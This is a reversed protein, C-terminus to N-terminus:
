KRNLDELVVDLTAGRVNANIINGNKDLLLSYPIGLINYAQSIDGEFGKPDNLQTWVMKEEKMAKVWAAKNEDLSISVIEFNNKKNKNVERLHPIEGRCPGCWSAWFELMVYKGEPVVSSLMVKKGDVTNLEFDQYHTGIATKKAKEAAAKFKEFRPNSAWGKAIANELSDIQPVTLAVFFGYFYNSAYDFAVPSSPHEMIYNWKIRELSDSVANIKRTLAKGEELDGGKNDMSPLYFVKMYKNDLDRLRKGMPATMAKYARSEDEAASGTIVPLSVPKKPNYYFSPLSDIYAKYYVDGNELYFSSILQDKENAKEGFKSKSFVLTYIQPSPVSGKLTFEGNQIMTSDVNVREPWDTTQLIVKYEDSPGVITGHLKFTDQAQLSFAILLSFIFLIFSKM